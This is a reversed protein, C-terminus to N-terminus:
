TMSLCPRTRPMKTPSVCTSSKCACLISASIAFSMASYSCDPTATPPIVRPAGVRIVRRSKSTEGKASNTGSGDNNDFGFPAGLTMGGVAVGDQKSGAPLTKRSARKALKERPSTLEGKATLAPARHVDAHYRGVAGAAQTQPSLPEIELHCHGHDPARRCPIVRHGGTVARSCESTRSSGRITAM